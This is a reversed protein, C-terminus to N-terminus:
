MLNIYLANTNDIEIAVTEPPVPRNLVEIFHEQWRWKIESEKALLNGDEDKDKL